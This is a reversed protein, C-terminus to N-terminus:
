IYSHIIHSSTPLEMDVLSSITNVKILLASQGRSGRPHSHSGADHSAFQAFKKISSCVDQQSIPYYSCECM